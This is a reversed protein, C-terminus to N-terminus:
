PATAAQGGTGGPAPMRLMALVALCLVAAIALLLFGLTYSGFATKVIGMVLPPFFGGLGGAAGVVGTVVGVEGPFEVGVMKFVAGTGFGLFVAMTLCAATLAPMSGYYGTLSAALMAVVAFSLLLVRDAGIRDALWGGAPRALVALLAFGAARASADAPTLRYVGVLLTPLYLFMAVFGGFCLFYYLTLAWARPRRLFVAFPALISTPASKLPGPAERAVLWFAVATLGALVAGLAFPAWLGYQKAITPLTLAALVTGGMGMGYVGLSFGQRQSPFWRSTFPVGVAFGAGVFGLLFGLTLLIAFSDHFAALLALPVVSYLLLAPFLIRGGWRDTAVGLPIRMVSGLIVPLAKLWATQVETLHYTKALQPSLPGFMSWVYFCVTFALTAYVLAGVSGRQSRVLAM